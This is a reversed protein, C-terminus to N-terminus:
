RKYLVCRLNIKDFFNAEFAICGVLLVASNRKPVIFLLRNPAELHDASTGRTKGLDTPSAKALAMGRGAVREVGRVAREKLDVGVGEGQVGERSKVVCLNEAGLITTRCIM